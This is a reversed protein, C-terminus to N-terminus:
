SEQDVQVVMVLLHIILLEVVVAVLTIAEQQGLVQKLHLVEVVLDVQEKVEMITIVVVAV